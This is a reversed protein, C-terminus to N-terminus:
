LFRLKPAEVIEAGEIEVDTNYLADFKAVIEHAPPVPTLTVGMDQGVSYWYCCYEGLDTKGYAPVMKRMILVDDSHVLRFAAYYDAESFAFRDMYVPRQSLYIMPVNKSRGQTLLRRFAPNRNGIMYGEDFYLGHYENEWVRNLYVIVAEADDEPHPRVIYLGPETPPKKYIDIEKAPLQAILGDRKFDFITVPMGAWSRRLQEALYNVGFQTKGSGTRGVIATRHTNNPPKFHSM